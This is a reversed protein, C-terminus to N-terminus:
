PKKLMSYSSILLSEPEKNEECSTLSYETEIRKAIQQNVTQLDNDQVLYLYKKMLDRDNQIFLFFDDIMTRNKRAIAEDLFEKIEM